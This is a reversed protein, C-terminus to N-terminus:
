QNTYNGDKGTFVYEGRIDKAQIDKWTKTGSKLSEYATRTIYILHINDSNPNIGTSIEDENVYVVCNIEEKVENDKKITNIFNYYENWAEKNNQKKAQKLLKDAKIHEDCTVWILNISKNNTKDGDIHHVELKFKGNECWLYAVLRHVRISIYSDFQHINVQKYGHTSNSETLVKNKSIDIIKGLNSILYKYDSYLRLTNNLDNVLKLSDLLKYSENREQTIEGFPSTLIPFTPTHLENKLNYVEDKYVHLKGNFHISNLQNNKIMRRLTPDTKDLIRCAEKITILNKM